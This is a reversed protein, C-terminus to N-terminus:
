LSEIEGSKYKFIRLADAIEVKGNRDTDAALQAQSSLTLEGSKYKFIMLADAISITGDGDVDGVVADTSVTIKCTATYNGVKATITTEGKSKAKVVGNEVSAVGSDSSSWIITKSDTTNTPNFNVTLTLSDGKFLSASTKNLSIGQLPVSKSKLVKVNYTREDGNEAKVVVSVVTEEGDLKVNGSGQVIQAKDNVTVGVVDVSNQNSPVTVVYGDTDGSDVDLNEGDVSLSKLWNNPSYNNSEPLQVAESPMNKYYPIIFTFNNELVGIEKYSKLISPAESSPAMVNQMYQHYFAGNSSSTNFKQFYLTNQKHVSNIYGEGIWYAGGLISKYQSNWPLLWKPKDDRTSSAFKLGNTIPSSGATAGINYFNYYGSYDKGDYSSVYTGSVSNSGQKGVEQITRSALHYPSVNAYVGADVYAQAYLVSENNLNTILVDDMFSGQIIKKVGDINQTSADYSLCEFMFVKNENLFNRPDLYYGITQANAQYWSGADHAIWKDNRWDYCGSQTSRYSLPYSKYILNRTTYCQGSSSTSFLSNWDYGTDYIVFNWNPHKKLLEEIYPKYIEPIDGPVVVPIDPESATPNIHVYDASVYGTYDRGGYVFQIKCWRPNKTDGDSDVTEIITVEHGTNLQIGLKNTSIAATPSSRVNIYDHTIYGTQVAFVTFYSAFSMLMSLVIVLSLLSKLFSKKM